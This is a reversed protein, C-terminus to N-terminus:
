EGSPPFGSTRLGSARLREAEREANLIMDGYATTDTSINLIRELLKGRNQSRHTADEEALTQRIGPQVRGAAALLAQDSAVTRNGSSNGGLAVRADALPTLDTRSRGGPNPTPLETLDEPLELPLHPIVAFEVPTEARAGISKFLGEKEGESCASMLGTMAALALITVSHRM